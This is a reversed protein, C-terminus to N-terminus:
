TSEGEGTVKGRGGREWVECERDFGSVRQWVREGEAWQGSCGSTPCSLM